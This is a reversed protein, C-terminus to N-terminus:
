TMLCHRSLLTVSERMEALYRNSVSGHKELDEAVRRLTEVDECHGSLCDIVDRVTVEHIDIVDSPEGRQFGLINARETPSLAYFNDSHNRM